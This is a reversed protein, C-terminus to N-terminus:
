GGGRPNPDRGESPVIVGAVLMETKKLKLEASSISKKAAKLDKKLDALTKKGSAM